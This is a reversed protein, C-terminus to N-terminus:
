HKSLAGTNRKIIDVIRKSSSFNTNSPQSSTLPVIVIPFQRPYKSTLPSKRIRAEQYRWVAVEDEYGFGIPPLLNEKEPRRWLRM